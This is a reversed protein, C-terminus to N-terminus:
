IKLIKMQNEFTYEKEVDDTDSYSVNVSGKGSARYDKFSTANKLGTINVEANANKFDYTEVYGSEVLKDSEHYLGEEDYYYYSWRKYDRTMKFNSDKLKISLGDQAKFNNYLDKLANVADDMTVEEGGSPIEGPKIDEIPAETPAVTPSETPKLEPVLSCGSLAVISLLLTLLKKNKM